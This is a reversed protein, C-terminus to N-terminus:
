AALAERIPASDVLEMQQEFELALAQHHHDIPLVRVVRAQVMEESAILPNRSWAIGIEVQDGPSFMRDRQVSVLSGGESVDTTSGAASPRLSRADVIKCPRVVAHRAFRRRDQAHDEPM